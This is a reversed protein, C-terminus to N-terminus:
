NTETLGFHSVNNRFLSKINISRLVMEVSSSSM